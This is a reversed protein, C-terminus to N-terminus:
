LTSPDFVWFKTDGLATNYKRLMVGSGPQFVMETDADLGTVTNIWTGAATNFYYRTILSSRNTGMDDPSITDVDLDFVLLEDRRAFPFANASKEFADSDALGSEALSVAVPRALAFSNDQSGNGTTLSSMAVASPATEVHGMPVFETGNADGLGGSQGSSPHRVVFYMDPLILTSDAAPFGAATSSWGGAKLFFRIQETALNIGDSVLDPFLVETRRAFPFNNASPVITTQTAAPFLTGLTWYKILKVGDAAVVTSLDDGGPDITLTNAGNGVVTYYRGVKTGTTFRVYHTNAFDGAGWGPAADVTLVDAVPAGTVTGIFDPKETIGATSCLTDSDWLCEVTTYGLPTTSATVASATPVGAFLSATLLGACASLSPLNSRKM